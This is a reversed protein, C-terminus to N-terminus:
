KMPSMLYGDEEDWEELEAEEDDFEDEDTETHNFRVGCYPCIMMDKKFRGGCVSCEYEDADIVHPYYIRTIFRGFRSRM